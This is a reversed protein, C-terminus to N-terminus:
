WRLFYRGKLMYKLLKWRDAWSGSFLSLQYTRTAEPCGIFENVATGVDIFTLDLSKYNIQFGLINSLSSGSSVVVTGTPLSNLFQMVDSLVTEWNAFFNDPLGYVYGFNDSTFRHNCILALPTGQRGMKLIEPFFKKKFWGYNSNTFLDCFTLNSQDNSLLELYLGQDPADKNHKAPIGRYYNPAKHRLSELLLSRFGSHKEPDFIKKDHAPYSIDLEKGRFCVRGMDISLYRSSLIETEGDSFRVFQFSQGEQLSRLLKRRDVYSKLM